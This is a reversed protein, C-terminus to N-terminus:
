SSKMWVSAGMLGPLLYAEEVDPGSYARGIYLLRLCRGEAFTFQAKVVPHDITEAEKSQVSNVRAIVAYGRRAM